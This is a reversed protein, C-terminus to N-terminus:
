RIRCSSVPKRGYQDSLTGWLFTGVLMGFFVLTSLSAASDDSIHWEPVQCQIIFALFSLISFQISTSTMFAGTCFLLKVQFRGTGIHAIAEDLSFETPETFRSAPSSSRPPTVMRELGTPSARVEDDEDVPSAPIMKM